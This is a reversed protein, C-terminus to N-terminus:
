YVYRYKPQRRTRRIMRRYRKSKKGGVKVEPNPNPNSPVPLELSTESASPPLPNPITTSPTPEPPTSEVLSSPESASPTANSFEGSPAVSEGQGESNESSLVDNESGIKSPVAMDSGSEMKPESESGMMDSQSRMDSESGMMDSQSRMDSESGMMDPGSEPGMDMM